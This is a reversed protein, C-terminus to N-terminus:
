QVQVDPVTEPVESGAVEVDPTDNDVPPNNDKDAERPTVVKRENNTRRRPVIDMSHDYWIYDM